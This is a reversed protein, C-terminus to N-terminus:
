HETRVYRCLSVKRPFFATSSFPDITSLAIRDYRGRINARIGRTTRADHIRDISFRMKVPNNIDKPNVIIWITPTNACIDIVQTRKGILLRKKSSRSHKALVSLERLIFVFDADMTTRTQRMEDGTRPIRDGTLIERIREVTEFSGETTRSICICCDSLCLLINFVLFYFVLWGDNM